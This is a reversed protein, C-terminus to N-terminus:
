IEPSGFYIASVIIGIILLVLAGITIATGVKTKTNKQFIYNRTEKEPEKVLKAEEEGQKM